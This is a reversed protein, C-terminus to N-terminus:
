KTFDPLTGMKGAQFDAYAQQLEEQTNMVFPGRWAIPEDIPEGEFILVRSNAKGMLTILNTKREFYVLSRPEVLTESVKISSNLNFIVSNYGTTLPIQVNGEKHFELEFLHIPTFTKAPGQQDEVTGAIVRVEGINEQSDLAKLPFRPFSQRKLNQYRPEVKKSKSPLNIWLQIMEFTGGKQSFDHSHYESHIIGKGATMWQVDGAKIVGGGGSSDKHEVEGQYALTVTEFGCHPHSGVGKPTKNKNSPFKSAEAYDLLLLPTLHNKHPSDPSIMSHVYFGDGVWHRGQSKIIQNSNLKAEPHKTNNQM